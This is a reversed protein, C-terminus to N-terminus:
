PAFRFRRRDAEPADARPSPYGRAARDKKLRRPLGLGPRTDPLVDGTLQRATPLRRRSDHRATCCAFRSRSGASPASPPQRSPSSGASETV